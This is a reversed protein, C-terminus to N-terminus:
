LGLAKKIEHAKNNRGNEFADKKIKEIASNIQYLSVRKIVLNDLYDSITSTILEDPDHSLEEDIMKQLIIGENTTKFIKLTANFVLNHILFSSSNESIECLCRDYIDFNYIWSGYVIGSGILIEIM